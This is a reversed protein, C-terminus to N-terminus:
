CCGEICWCYSYVDEAFVTAAPIDKLRTDVIAPMKQVQELMLVEDIGGRGLTVGTNPKINEDGVARVPVTVVRTVVPIHQEKTADPGRGEGHTKEMSEVGNGNALQQLKKITDLQDNVNSVGARQDGTVLGRKENLFQRLNGQFKDGASEVEHAEM